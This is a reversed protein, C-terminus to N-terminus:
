NTLPNVYSQSVRSLTTLHIARGKIQCYRGCDRGDVVIRYRQVVSIDTSRIPPIEDSTGNPQHQSLLISENKKVRRQRRQAGVSLDYYKQATQQSHGLTRSRDAADDASRSANTTHVHRFIGLKLGYDCAMRRAQLLFLQKTFFKTM